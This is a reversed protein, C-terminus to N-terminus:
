FGSTKHLFKRCCSIETELRQIADEDDVCGYLIDQIEVNSILHIVDSGHQEIYADVEDSTM